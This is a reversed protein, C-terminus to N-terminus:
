PSASSDNGNSSKSKRASKTEKESVIEADIMPSSTSSTSYTQSANNIVDEIIDEQSATLIASQSNRLRANSSFGAWSGSQVPVFPTKKSLGRTTKVVLKLVLEGSEGIVIPQVLNEKLRELKTRYNLFVEPNQLDETFFPFLVKFANKAGNIVLPDLSLIFPRMSVNGRLNGETSYSGTSATKNLQTFNGKNKIPFVVQFQIVEMEINKPLFEQIGNLFFKQFLINLLEKSGIQQTNQVVLFFLEL